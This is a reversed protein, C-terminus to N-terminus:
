YKCDKKMPKKKEMKKGDKKEMNRINKEEVKRKEKTAMKSDKTQLNHLKFALLLTERLVLQAILWPKLV